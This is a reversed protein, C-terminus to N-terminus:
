LIGLQEVARSPCILRGCERLLSHTADPSEGHGYEYIFAYADACMPPLDELCLYYSGDPGLYAHSEGSFGLQRLRRCVALLWEIREFRFALSSASVPEVSIRENHSAGDGEESDPPEIRSVFIECGGDRSVYLQILTRFRETVFGVEGEACRLLKRLFARSRLDACDLDEAVIGWEELEEARLTIKLKNENIKLFEM